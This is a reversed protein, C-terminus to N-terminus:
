AIMSIQRQKTQLVARPKWAASFKYCCAQLFIFTSILSFISFHWLFIKLFLNFLLVLNFNLVCNSFIFSALLYFCSCSAILGGRSPQYLQPSVTDSSLCEPRNNQFFIANGLAFFLCESTDNVNIAILM